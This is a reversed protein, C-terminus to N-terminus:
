TDNREGPRVDIGPVILGAAARPLVVHRRLKVTQATQRMHLARGRRGVSARTIAARTAARDRRPARPLRPHRLRLCEDFAPAFDEALRANSEAPTGDRDPFHGHAGLELGLGRALGSGSM